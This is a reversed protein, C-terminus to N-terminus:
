DRHQQNLPWKEIKMKAQQYRQGLHAGEGGVEKFCKKLKTEGLSCVRIKRGGM